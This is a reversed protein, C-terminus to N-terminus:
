QGHLSFINVGRWKKSVLYKLGSLKGGDYEKM